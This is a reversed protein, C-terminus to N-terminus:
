VFAELAAWTAADAVGTAPLHKSQQFRKLAAETGGGFDGDAGVPEGALRLRVQLATVEDSKDGRKVTIRAPMPGPAYGLAAKAKALYAKRDAFGNQGGNVLQTVTRIDDHDAHYILRKAKWYECAIRLSVVPEAARLPNDELDLDLLQGFKRHNVRGTLQLLGRGTYRPGDGPATNGLDTRGEYQTGDAYETTTVFGDSEHCTQAVFHAVRLDTAIEYDALTVFLVPGVADIIAKQSAGRSGSNPPAVARLLQADYPMIERGMSPTGNEIARITGGDPTHLL